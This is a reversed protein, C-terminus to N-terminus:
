LRSRCHLCFSATPPPASPRLQCAKLPSSVKGLEVCSSVEPQLYWRLHWWGGAHAHSHTSNHAHTHTHTHPPIRVKGKSAREGYASASGEEEQSYYRTFKEKTATYPPSSCLLIFKLPISNLPTSYLLTSCLLSCYLSTSYSM